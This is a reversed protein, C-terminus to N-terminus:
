RWLVGGLSVCGVDILLTERATGTHKGSRKSTRQKDANPFLRYFTPNAPVTSVRNFAARVNFLLIEQGQCNGPSPRKMSDM